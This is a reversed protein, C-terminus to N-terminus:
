DPNRWIQKKGNEIWDFEYGCADDGTLVDCVWKGKEFDYRAPAICMPCISMIGPVYRIQEETM